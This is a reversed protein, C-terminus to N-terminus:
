EHRLAEIPDLRAARRAPLYGFAMGIAASFVFAVLISAASPLYPMKLALTAAFSLGLGLMIGVMGGMASMAMAEVLFQLLVDRERAGIALRIGIERTRETVSVLMINMIGIGGVLLSVAAVAALFAALMGTTQNITQSIQALDAVSFDDDSPMAIHRRQRMLAQTQAIIQKTDGQGGAALWVSAIDSNGNLRRQVAKLPMLAIDDQDQGFTSKGKAALVGVVECASQGVRVRTGTPDQAGFLQRRVTEGLLCVAKGARLEADSFSRGVAIATGHADFYGDEIGIVQSSHNRNGAVVVSTHVTEPSLARLHPIERAIATVDADSFPKAGQAAQQGFGRQTGPTLILVNSGLAGISSTIQATAGNGLTVIAIVSGVGIVIGLTTLIARMLNRRLERLALIFADGIM